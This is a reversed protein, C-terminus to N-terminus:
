DTAAEAATIIAQRQSDNLMRHTLLAIIIIGPINLALRLLVFKIGMYSAEFFLLTLKTSSWAGIFIFVNTLTSGKKLFVASIPFAAYLPGSGVSGLFFAIAVGLLGSGEGMFKVMTERKVWIDMLGLLIFIPPLITLMEIINDGTKSFAPKGIDPLAFLLIVNVVLLALFVKYRFLLKTLKKM